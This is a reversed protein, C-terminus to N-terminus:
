QNESLPIRKLITSNYELVGIPLNWELKQTETLDKGTSNLSDYYLDDSKDSMSLSKHAESKDSM